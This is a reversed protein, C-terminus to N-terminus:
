RRLELMMALRMELDALQRMTEKRSGEEGAERLRQRLASIEKKLIVEPPLAGARAMMQFGFIEVPDGPPLPPLPQGALALHDFMGEEIAAEIRQEALKLFSM